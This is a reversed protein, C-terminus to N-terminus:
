IFEKGYVLDTDRLEEIFDQFCKKPIVIKAKHQQIVIDDKYIKFVTGCNVESDYVIVKSDNVSHAVRDIYRWVSGYPIGTEKSIMNTSLGKKVLKDIQKRQETTM